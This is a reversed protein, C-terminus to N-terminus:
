LSFRAEVALWLTTEPGFAPPEANACLFVARIQQRSPLPPGCFIVSERHEVARRLADADGGYSSASLATLTMMALAPLKKM